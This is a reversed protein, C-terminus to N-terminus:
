LAHATPVTPPACRGSALGDLIGCAAAPQNKGCRARLEHLQQELARLEHIRRVVHEIHGDLVRSAVGCDDGPADRVALLERVEALSLDLSRCNRIFLLRELHAADYRRYNSQTRAPAPMLGQSEYFRITEVPLGVRQALEGIKM